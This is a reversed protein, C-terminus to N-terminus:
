AAQLASSLIQWLKVYSSQNGTRISIILYSQTTGDLREGEGGGERGRDRYTNTKRDTQREIHTNSYRQRDSETGRHATNTHRQTDKDIHTRTDM